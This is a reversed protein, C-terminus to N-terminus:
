FQFYLFPSYSMALLRSVAILFILATLVMAARSKMKLLPELFVIFSGIVFASLAIGRVQWAYADSLRLGNVGLMGAYMTGASSLNDARFLVWGLVVLLFTFATAIIRKANLQLADHGRIGLAREVAMIGGHFVGWLIFTWNAGHWLGGLTMTIIINLYTRAKGVRNGGLPIYLYDRLWTSLSIHWRRWFESISASLYPMNFNEIFRFGLMLGIGIAMHSYGAFDFFLQLTYALAGLWADAMSPEGLAFAGDVMPALTDAILVKMSFGIMFRRAGEGFKDMSHVRNEFQGALDKYRLIPGAILQPFLGIFAAFDIFRKAPPADGRYVDILFSVAQFIYFSIGIPLIFKIAELSQFGSATLMANMSEIGFNFYKFIGLTGLNLVLGLVLLHKAIPQGKYKVIGHAIFHSWLIVAIMLLLFDVRWWGYFVMSGALIAYSRYKMPTLYYAGLFVPLFVFLFFASSFVM